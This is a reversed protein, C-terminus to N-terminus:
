PYRVEAIKQTFNDVQHTQIATNSITYLYDNSQDSMLLSRRPQSRLDWFKCASSEENLSQECESGLKGEYEIWGRKTLSTLETGVEIVSFGSFQSVWNM